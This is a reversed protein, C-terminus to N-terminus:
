QRIRLGKAETRLALDSCDKYVIANIKSKEIANNVAQEGVDTLNKAKKDNDSEATISVVTTGDAKIYDKEAASDVLRELAESLNTNIVDNESLMTQGDANVGEATVVKDFLNIGLEISPNIDLSIYAVPTNLIANGGIFTATMFVAAVSAVLLKKMTFFKKNTGQQKLNKRLYMATKKVLEDEAKVKDLASKFRTNMM